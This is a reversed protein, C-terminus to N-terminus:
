RLIWPRMNPNRWYNLMLSIPHITVHGDCYAQVGAMAHGYYPFCSNSISVGAYYFGTSEPNNIIRYLEVFVFTEAPLSISSLKAGPKISGWTMPSIKESNGWAPTENSINDPRNPCGFFIAYGPDFQISNGGTTVFKGVYRGLLQQPYFQFNVLCGNNDEAFSLNAQAVSGLKKTCVLGRAKDISNRITPMLISLLIAFVAMVVLLETLTFTAKRFHPPQSIKM